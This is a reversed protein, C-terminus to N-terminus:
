ILHVFQVYGCVTAPFCWFAKFGWLSKQTIYATVLSLCCVAETSDTNGYVISLSFKHVTDFVLGNGL